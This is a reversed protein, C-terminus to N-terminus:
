RVLPVRRFIGLQTLVHGLEFSSLKGRAGNREVNQFVTQMKVTRSDPGAIAVQANEEGFIACLYWQMFTPVLVIIRKLQDPENATLHGVIRLASIGANHGLNFLSAGIGLGRENGLYFREPQGGLGGPHERRV